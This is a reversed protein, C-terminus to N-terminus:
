TNSNQMYITILYYSFHKKNTNALHIIARPLVRHLMKRISALTGKAVLTGNCTCKQVYDSNLPMLKDSINIMYYLNKFCNCM